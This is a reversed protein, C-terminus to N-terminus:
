ESVPEDDDLLAAVRAATASAMSDRDIYADRTMSESEHGLAAAMVAAGGTAVSGITAATGRLGHATIVPVGALEMHRRAHYLVWHRDAPTGDVKAFLHGDETAPNAALELMIAVMDGTVEAARKSAKTKAEHEAIRLVRGRDDVDRAILQSVESARMSFMLALLGAIAGRDRNENWSKFCHRMYKRAEDM